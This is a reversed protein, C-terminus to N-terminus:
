VKDKSHWNSRVVGRCREKRMSHLIHKGKLLRLLPCQSPYPIRDKGIKDYDIITAHGTTSVVLIQKLVEQHQATEVKDKKLREITFIARIEDAGVDMEFITSGNLLSLVKLKGEISGAVIDRQQNAITLATIDCDFVKYYTQLEGSAAKWITVYM